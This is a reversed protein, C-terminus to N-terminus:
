VGTTLPEIALHPPPGALKVLWVGSNGRGWGVLIFGGDATPVAEAFGFSSNDGFSRQWVVDWTANVKILWAQQRGASASILPTTKNGSVGSFTIAILLFGRDTGPM